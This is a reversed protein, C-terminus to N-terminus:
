SEEEDEEWGEDEEEYCCNDCRILGCSNSRVLKPDECGCEPCEKNM